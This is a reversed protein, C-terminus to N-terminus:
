KKFAVTFYYTPWRRSKDLFDLLSFLQALIYIPFFIIVSFISVIKRSGKPFMLPLGKILSHFFVAPLNFIGGVPKTSKIIFKNKLLHKIGFETFRYKDHPVDHIPYLFPSIIVLIGKIKLIRAVEEIVNIPNTCYYLSNVIIIKDFSNKKFPLTHADGVIHTKDFNKIDFSVIRGNIFKHYNPNKGSGIDLIRENSNTFIDRIRKKFYMSILFFEGIM